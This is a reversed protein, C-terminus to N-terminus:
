EETSSNKFTGLIPATVLSPGQGVEVSDFEYRIRVVNDQLEFLSACNRVTDELNGFHEMEKKKNIKKVFRKIASITLTPQRTYLFCLLVIKVDSPISQLYICENVLRQIAEYVRKQAIIIFTKHYHHIKSCIPLFDRDNSALLITKVNKYLYVSELIDISIQLDASNKGGIAPVNIFFCEYKFTWDCYHQILNNKDMDFYIFIKTIKYIIMLYLLESESLHINEADIFLLTSM